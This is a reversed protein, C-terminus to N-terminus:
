SRFVGLFFLLFVFDQKLLKFIVMPGQKKWLFVGCEIETQGMAALISARHAGDMIIFDNKWIRQYVIIPDKEPFYGTNSIIRTLEEFNKVYDSHNLELDGNKNKATSLSKAFKEYNERNGTSKGLLFKAFSYHPSKLLPVTNPQEGTEPNHPIGVRMRRIPVTFLGSYFLIQRSNAVRIKHIGKVPFYRIFLILKYAAKALKRFKHYAKKHSM